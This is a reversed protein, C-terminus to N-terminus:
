QGETASPKVVRQDRRIEKPRFPNENTATQETQTVFWRRTADVSSVQAPYM